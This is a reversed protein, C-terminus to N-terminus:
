NVMSTDLDVLFKRVTVSVRNGHVDITDLEHRKQTMRSATTLPSIRNSLALSTVIRMVLALPLITTSSLLTTVTTALLARFLQVLLFLTAIITTLRALLFGTTFRDLKASTLCFPTSMEM